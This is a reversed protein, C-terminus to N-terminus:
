RLLGLAAHTPALDAAPIQAKDGIALARELAARAADAHDLALQARGLATLPRWLAPNDKGGVAEYGAISQEAFAQADRWAKDALALEARSALTAPLVTSTTKKELALVEDFLAHAEALKGAAILTDCTDTALQHFV